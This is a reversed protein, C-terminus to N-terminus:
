TVAAESCGPPLELSKQFSGRSLFNCEREMDAGPHQRGFWGQGVVLYSGRQEWPRGRDGAAPSM